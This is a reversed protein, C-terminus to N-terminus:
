KKRFTRNRVVEDYHPNDRKMLLDVILKVHPTSIQEDPFKEATQPHLRPNVTPSIAHCWNYDDFELYGGRKLLKDVLATACGDVALEHAGDLYVYDFIPGEPHSSILKALGWCYSDHTKHTNGIAHIVFNKDPFERRVREAVLDVAEQYDFLYLVAGSPLAQCATMVGDGKDVGIEAYVRANSERLFRQRLTTQQAIVRDM